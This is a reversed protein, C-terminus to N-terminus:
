KELVENEANLFTLSDIDTLFEFCFKRVIGISRKEVFFITGRSLLGCM